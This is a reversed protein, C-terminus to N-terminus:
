FRQGISRSTAIHMELRGLVGAGGGCPQQSRNPWFIPLGVQTQDELVATADSITAYENSGVGLLGVHNQAFTSTSLILVTLMPAAFYGSIKM